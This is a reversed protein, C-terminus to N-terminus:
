NIQRVGDKKIMNTPSNKLNNQISSAQSAKDM